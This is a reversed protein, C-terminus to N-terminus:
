IGGNERGRIEPLAIAYQYYSFIETDSYFSTGRLVGEAKALAGTMAAATLCRGQRLNSVAAALVTPKLWPWLKPPPLPAPVAGKM